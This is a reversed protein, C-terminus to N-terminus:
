QGGRLAAAEERLRAALQHMDNGLGKALAELAELDAAIASLMEADPPSPETDHRDPTSM